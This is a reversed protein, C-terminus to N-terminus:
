PCFTIVYNAGTNCTFTSSRDDYAYSYAKPCLNKFFRSYDTPPCTSPTNYAGTCCYQPTNFQVCASRCGITAGAGNRLALQSPCQANIDVPCDATACGGNPVISVPLNFGDVNSVDYTDKGGSGGITFEALTAPPIAGTGNCAEQGSGCDGSDCQFRGGNNSCEFRAWVQLQVRLRFSSFWEDGIQSRVALAPFRDGVLPLVHLVVFAVCSGCPLIGWGLSKGFSTSQGDGIRKSCYSLFDFGSSKLVQVEKLISSWISVKRVSHSDIKDGHVAQIVRFWLSDDQSVFRWVWKLLLARNLAFYSSVGLGGKEEEFSRISEMVKLVGKPVKFISMNYLPSAGLVSKLLTLRGGISLTKAKWKSLRSQLKLIVDDWTIFSDDWGWWLGLYRFKNGYFRCGELGLVGLRVSDLLELVDLLFDWCFRTMSGGCGCLWDIEAFYVCSARLRNLWIKTLLRGNFFRRWEWRELLDTFIGMVGTELLIDSITCVYDKKFFSEEWICLIGGSNGAAESFVYDYNSNGWMFKVDMHSVKEMKTEQIAIFNLEIINSLGKVWEKKPSAVLWHIMEDLVGLVSGGKNNGSGGVSNFSVDEHVVQSNNMVGQVSEDESSYDHEKISEFSPTWTFLEKARVMYVKRGFSTEYSDEINLVEGWKNGIKDFSKRSWAYLPVGEIDLWVVREDCNLVELCTSKAICCEVFIDPNDNCIPCLVSDDDIGCKDLNLRTPLRRHNRWSSINVKSPLINNWCYPVAPLLSTTKSIHIRMAKVLFDKSDSLICTWKDSDNTYIVIIISADGLFGDDGNGM